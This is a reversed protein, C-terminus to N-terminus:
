EAPKKNEVEEREKQQFEAIAQKAMAKREPFLDSVMYAQALRAKQLNRAAAEATPLVCFGARLNEAAQAASTGMRRFTESAHELDRQTINSMKHVEHRDPLDCVECWRDQRGQFEHPVVNPRTSLMEYEQELEHNIANAFENV